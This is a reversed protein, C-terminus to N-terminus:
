SRHENKNSQEKINNIITRYIGYLVSLGTIAIGVILGGTFILINTM